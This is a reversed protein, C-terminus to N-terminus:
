FAQFRKFQLQKSNVYEDAGLKKLQEIFQDWSDMSREGNIFKITEWLAYGGGDNEAWLEVGDVEDQVAVMTPLYVSRIKDKYKDLMANNTENMRGAISQDVPHFWPQEHFGWVDEFHRQFEEEDTMDEAVFQRYYGNDMLEYHEGEYAWHALLYGEKNALIYDLWKIAVEPVECNKTIAWYGALNAGNFGHWKTDEWSPMATWTGFGMPGGEDLMWTANGSSYAGVGHDKKQHMGREKWYEIRDMDVVAKEYWGHEYAQKMWAVWEKARPMFYKYTLTEDDDGILVDGGNLNFMWDFYGPIADIIWVYPGFEDAEGNGNPDQTVFAELVENLTEINTPMSLNLKDMWDQRMYWVFAHTNPASYSQVGMLHGDPHYSMKRAMPNMDYLNKIDPAHELILDDVAYVMDAEYLGQLTTMNSPILDPLTEGAAIMADLIEYAHHRELLVWDSHVNTKEEMEKWNRYSTSEENTYELGVALAISLNTLEDAIPLKLDATMNAIKFEIAPGDRWEKDSTGMSGSDDGSGSAFALAGSVLLLILGFCLVKTKRM